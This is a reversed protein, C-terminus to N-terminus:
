PVTTYAASAAARPLSAPPLSALYACFDHQGLTVATFTRVVSYTNVVQQAISIEAGPHMREGATTSACAQDDHFVTLQSLNASYGYVTLTFPSSKHVTGPMSIHVTYPPQALAIGGTAFTFALAALGAALWHTHKPHSM